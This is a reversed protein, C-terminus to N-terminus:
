WEKFYELMERYFAEMNCKMIYNNKYDSNERLNKLFDLQSQFAEKELKERDNYMNSSEQDCHVLEHILISELCDIIFTVSAKFPCLDEIRDWLDAPIFIFQTGGIGPYCSSVNPDFNDGTTIGFAGEEIFPIIFLRGMDQLSNLTLLTLENRVESPLNWSDELLELIYEKTDQPIIQPSPILLDNQQAFSIQNPNFFLFIFISFLNYKLRLDMDGVGAILVM